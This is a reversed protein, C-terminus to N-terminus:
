RPLEPVFEIRRPCKYSALERQVHQQIALALGAKDIGDPKLVVFAKPVTGRVPDPDAVVVADLVAPHERLVQAVEAGSINHGASIILTDARGRYRIDNHEDRVCIDGTINWGGREYEQQAAPRRWYRCRTPGRVALRGPVGPPVDDLVENVLRIEYGPVAEGLTGPVVHGPRQSLFVHCMETTGFSDILETGTRSQWEVATGPDLAEGASVCLRLSRLDFRREFDPMRLMMRYSTATGFLLTVRHAQISEPLDSTSRFEDLVVRSGFRLPFVLLSGLGYAYSLSLHGALVDAPSCRLISAGYTDATALIDSVLHCAGRPEADTAWTYAIAAVTDPSSFYSAVEDRAANLRTEFVPGRDSNASGAILVPPPPSIRTWARDVDEMLTADVVCLAPEADNVIARIERSRLAPATAVTIAGIKQAALWVTVFPLGNPLRLLVRDGPRVGCGTLVNGAKNVLRILSRYTIQEGRTVIAVDDPSRAGRELLEVALNIM